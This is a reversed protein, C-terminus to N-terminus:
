RRRRKSSSGHKDKKDGSPPRKGQSNKMRPRSPESVEADKKDKRLLHLIEQLAQTTGPPRRQIQRVDIFAQRVDSIRQLEPDALPPRTLPMEVSELNHAIFRAQPTATAGFCSAQWGEVFGYQIMEEFTQLFHSPLYRVREFLGHIQQPVPGVNFNWALEATGFSFRWFQRDILKADEFSELTTILMRMIKCLLQFGFDPVHEYTKM